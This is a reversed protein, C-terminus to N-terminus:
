RPRNATTDMDMVLLVLSLVLVLSCISDLFVFLLCSKLRELLIHDHLIGYRALDLAYMRRDVSGVFCTGSAEDVTPTGLVLDGTSFQWVLRRKPM